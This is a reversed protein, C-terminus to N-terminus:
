FILYSVPRVESFFCILYDMNKIPYLVRRVEAFFFKTIGIQFKGGAKIALILCLSKLLIFYELKVGPLVKFVFSDRTERTGM